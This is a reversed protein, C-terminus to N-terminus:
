VPQEVGNISVKGIGNFQVLVSKIQGPPIPPQPPQPPQPPTVKIGYLKQIRPIDDNQQPTAVSVSYYPAMLASQIKSHDLGLGHGLEHCTVNFHLIGREQPNTIWTEQVDYRMLLQGDSGNPLYCWALVGGPGDFNSSPGSGTSLVIDAKNQASVQEATINTYQSWADFAGQINAAQVDKSLGSVFSQIYYTLATDQWKAVNETVFQKIALAETSKKSKRNVIDVHGCRPLQMTRITKPDPRNTIPLGFFDQFSGFAKKIDEWKINKWDELWRSFYGFADLYQLAFKVETERSHSTEEMFAFQPSKQAMDNEIVLNVAAALSM